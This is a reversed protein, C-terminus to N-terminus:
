ILMKSAVGAAEGPTLLMLRAVLAVLDQQRQTNTKIFLASLQTRVTSIRSGRADAFNQPSLGQMLAQLLATEAPSLRYAQRALGVAASCDLSREMLVWAVGPARFDLGLEAIDSVSLTVLILAGPLELCGSHGQLARHFLARLGADATSQLATGRQLSRLARSEPRACLALARANAHVLRGATDFFLLGMPMQEMLTELGQMRARLATMERHLWATQQVGSFEARFRAVDDYGFGEGSGRRCIIMNLHGVPHPAYSSGGLLRATIERPRLFDAYIATQRSGRKHERTSDAVVWATGEAKADVVTHEKATLWLPDDLRMENMYSQVTEFGLGVEVLAPTGESSPSQLWYRTSPQAAFESGWEALHDLGGSLFAAGQLEANFSAAYSALAQSWRAHDAVAGLLENLAPHM